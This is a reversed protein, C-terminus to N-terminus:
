HRVSRSRSPAFFTFGNPLTFQDAGCTITVDTVGATHPPTTVKLSTSSDFLTTAPTAGFSATCSPTFNLGSITTATGGATLGDPPVVQTVVVTPASLDDNQITVTGTDKAIEPVGPYSGYGNSVSAISVMITEDPESETDGYITIPITQKTEGPPFTVSTTAADYDVGSTATGSYTLTASCSVALPRSLSVTLEVTTQGANGETVSVDSISLAPVPADVITVTTNPTGLLAGNTPNQLAVTWTQAPMWVGGHPTPLDVIKQTQNPGFTLFGSAPPGSITSFTVGVTSTMDGTRVITLPAGGAGATFTYQSSAWSLTPAPEDDLLNILIFGVGNLSYGNKDQLMVGNTPNTISVGIQGEGEYVADDILPITIAKDFEGAGFTLTGSIFTFRGYANRYNMTGYDVTTPAFTTHFVIKTTGASESVDPPVASWTMVGSAVLLLVYNTRQSSATEVSAGVNFQGSTTFTHQVTPTTTHITTGDTFTWTVGTECSQLAYPAGSNADALSFTVPSGLGCPPPAAGGSQCGAGTYHVSPLHGTPCSQAFLRSALFAMAATM